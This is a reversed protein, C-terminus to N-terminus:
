NTQELFLKSRFAWNNLLIIVIHKLALAFRNILCFGFCLYHCFCSCFEFYLRLMPYWLKRFFTLMVMDSFALCKVRLHYCVILCIWPLCYELSVKFVILGYRELWVVMFCLFIHSLVVCFLVTSSVFVSLYECWVQGWGLGVLATKCRSSWCFQMKKASCAIHLPTRLYTMFSIQYQSYDIRVDSTIRIHFVISLYSPRQEILYETFSISQTKNMSNYLPSQNAWAVNAWLLCTCVIKYKCFHM